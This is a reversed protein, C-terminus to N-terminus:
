PFVLMPLAAGMDSVEDGRTQTDGLGLEGYDNMGWCKVGDNTLLTCAFFGSTTLPAGFMSSVPKSGPGLDIPPLGAIEGPQDGFNNQAALAPQGAVAGGHAWCRLEGFISVACTSHVRADIRNVPRELPVLPLNDGMSSAIRGRQLTDGYGRQGMFNSGWCKVQGSVNRACTHDGGSTVGVPVFSGLLAPM